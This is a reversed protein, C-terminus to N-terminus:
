FCVMGRYISVVCDVLERVRAQLKTAERKAAKTANAVEEDLRTNLEKVQAELASQPLLYTM